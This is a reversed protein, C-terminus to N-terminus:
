YIFAGAMILPHVTTVDEETTKGRSCLHARVGRVEVVGHEEVGHAEFLDQFVPLIRV